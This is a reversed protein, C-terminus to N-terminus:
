QMLSLLSIADRGEVTLAHLVNGELVEIIRGAMWVAM